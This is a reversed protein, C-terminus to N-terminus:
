YLCNVRIEKREERKQRERIFGCMWRGGFILWLFWDMVVLIVGVFFFFFFFIEVVVVFLVRVLILGWLFFLFLFDVVAAVIGM